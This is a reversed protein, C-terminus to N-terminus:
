FLIVELQLLIARFPFLFMNFRFLIFKFIIYFFVLLQSMISEDSALDGVSSRLYRKLHGHASEVINTSRCGLHLLKNMWARVFHKKVNSVTTEVYKVFMPFPKCVEKFKLWASEYSDKTPSNVVERSLRLIKKVLDCHKEDNAEKVDKDVIKAGTPKAKVRCDMICRAKVNKEIHFYCLVHNTKPLVKAVVNILATDRDTVVVKPM